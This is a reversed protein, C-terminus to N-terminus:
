FEETYRIFINYKESSNKDDKLDSFKKKITTKLKPKTKLINSNINM